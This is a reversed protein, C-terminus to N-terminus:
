VRCRRYRTYQCARLPRNGVGLSRNKLENPCNVLQFINLDALLSWTNITEGSDATLLTGRISSAVRSPKRDLKIGLLTVPVPDVIVCRDEEDAIRGLKREEDVCLFTDWLRVQLISRHKPVIKGSVLVCNVLDHVKETVTAGWVGVSM